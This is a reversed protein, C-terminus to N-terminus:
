PDFPLHQLQVYLGALGDFGGGWVRIMNMNVDVASQLLDRTKEPTIRGALADAPLWNTGKAFVDRGNVCIKFGLGAADPTTVLNIQRLGVKLTKQTAAASVTLDYLVQDGQGAPWWLQPDTIPIEVTCIGNKLQGNYAQGNFSFDVTGVRNSVEATVTLTVGDSHDQMVKVIDIRPAKSVEIRMDGYIGFPALAINWDWGFDCQVKRLLNGNPIPSNETQWPLFFPAADQAAQAAKISSHFTVRIENEGIRAARALSVRYDRFSNKTELVTIGNVCVTAVCDVMSLALDVNVDTLTFIRTATWDRAAIWRLDYENRGWYPDPILGADHLATIGDTPLHMDCTYDGSDDSLAWKGALDIFTM